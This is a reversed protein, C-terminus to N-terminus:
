LLLKGVHEMVLNAIVTFGINDRAFTFMQHNYDDKFVFYIGEFCLKFLEVIDCVDLFTRIRLNPNSNLLDEAASLVSSVSVEHFSLSLTLRYIM